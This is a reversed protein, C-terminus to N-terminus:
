LVLRWIRRIDFVFLIRDILSLKFPYEEEVCDIEGPLLFIEITRALQYRLDRTRALLNNTKKDYIEIYKIGCIEKERSAIEIKLMCDEEEKITSYCKNSDFCIRDMKGLFWDKGLLLEKSNFSVKCESWPSCLYNPSCDEESIKLADKPLSSCIGDNCFSSDSCSGCNLVVGCVMKKGCQLGLDTCDKGCVTECKGNVCHGDICDKDSVCGFCFGNKCHPNVGLCKDVNGWIACTSLGFLGCVQYSVNDVCRRQGLICEPICLSGSGGGGGPSPGLIGDSALCKSKDFRCKNVLDPAICSLTGSVFGFSVCSKGGLNGMDCEENLEPIVIGDGCYFDSICTTTDRECSKDCNWTGGTYVKPNIAVCSQGTESDCTEWSQKVRDGCYRYITEIKFFRNQGSNYVSYSSQLNMNVIAVPIGTRSSATNYDKLIFFYRGKEDELKSPDWTLNLTGTFNGGSDVDYRLFLIRTSDQVADWTDISAKKSDIDSYFSSEDKKIISIDADLNDWGSFAGRETRAFFTTTLTNLRADIEFSLGQEFVAEVSGVMFFLMLVLILSSKKM